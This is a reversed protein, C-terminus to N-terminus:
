RAAQGLAQRRWAHPPMGVAAHFRRTFHAQDSFGCDLAIGSLGDRTTLMLQQAQAIRRQILFAHPSTGFSQRFARSFHQPSLRVERAMDATSVAGDLRAAILAEVKKKQWPALGGHAINANAPAMVAREAQLMAYARALSAKAAEWNRDFDNLGAGLLTFVADATATHTSIAAASPM